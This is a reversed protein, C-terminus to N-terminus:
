RAWEAVKAREGPLEERTAERAPLYFSLAATTVLICWLLAAMSLHAIVVGDALTTWINMAGILAQVLYAALAVLPLAVLLRQHRREEFGEYVLGLLVIGLLGAVFRHLMHMAQAEGNGILTSGQCTPWSTCALSADTGSIYSGLVLTVFAVAAAAMAFWMYPSIAAAPAARAGRARMVSIVATVLMIGLFSMATALHAAVVEAPLEKKVTIGGLIIQWLLVVGATFTLWFVLRNKRETKFTFFTVSLFLVGVATAASRHSYEIITHKELRPVLRGNCTPWDPCGLGSDTARVTGGIVVLAFTAVITIILLRQFWTM